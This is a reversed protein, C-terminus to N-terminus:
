VVTQACQWMLPNFDYTQNGGHGPMNKLSPRHPYVSLTVSCADYEGSYMVGVCFFYHFVIDFFINIKNLVTCIIHFSTLLSNLNVEPINITYIFLPCTLSLIQDTVLSSHVCNSCAEWRPKSWLMVQYQHCWYGFCCNFIIIGLSIVLKVVLKYNKWVVYIEM